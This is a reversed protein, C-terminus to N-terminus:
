RCYRNNCIISINLSCLNRIFRLNEALEIIGMDGIANKAIYIYIYYLYEINSLNLKRLNPIYKLAKSLGAM